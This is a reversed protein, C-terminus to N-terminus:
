KLIEYSKDVKVLHVDKGKPFKNVYDEPKYSIRLHTAFVTKVKLSCTDAIIKDTMGHYNRFSKFRKTPYGADILVADTGEVFEELDKSYRAVDSTYVFTKDKHQIKTAFSEGKHLTKCFTFNCGDISFEVFHNLAKVDYVSKQAKVITYLISKRPLYVQVRKKNKHFLNYIYLYPALLLLSFNHDVHNHSIIFLVNNMDINEKKVVRLFKLFVGAGFDLFIDKSFGLLRYCTSKHKGFTCINPSYNGLVYFVFNNM